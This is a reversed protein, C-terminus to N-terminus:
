DMNVRIGNDALGILRDGDGGEESAGKKVEDTIYGFLCNQQTTMHSLAAGAGQVKTKELEGSRRREKSTICGCLRICATKWSFV